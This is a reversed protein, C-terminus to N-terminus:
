SDTEHARLHTYSVTRGVFSVAIEDIRVVRVLVVRTRIEVLPLDEGHAPYVIQLEKAPVSERTGGEAPPLIRANHSRLAACWKRHHVSNVPIARANGISGASPRIRVNHTVRVRQGAM